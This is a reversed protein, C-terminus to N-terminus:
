KGQVDSGKSATIEVEERTKRNSGMRASKKRIAFTGFGAVKVSEGAVLTQMLTHFIIEMIAQANAKPLGDKEALINIIDAKTM